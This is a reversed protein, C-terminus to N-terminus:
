LLGVLSTCQWPVGVCSRLAYLGPNGVSLLQLALVFRVGTRQALDGGARYFGMASFAFPAFTLSSHSFSVHAYVHRCHKFHNCSHCRRVMESGFPFSLQEWGSVREQQLELMRKYQQTWGELRLDDMLDLFVSGEMLGFQTYYPANDFMAIFTSYAQTLYWQWSYLRKLGAYDRTLRYMSHYMVTPHVYNYSRWLQSGRVQDWGDSVEYTYGPMSPYWFMSARISHNASQVSTPYPVEPSVKVGWLTKNIYEDVLQLPGSFPAYRQSMMLQLGPGAGAEDSLGVVYSREDQWIIEGAEFDYPMVSSSRGFPDSTEAGVWQYQSTFAGLQRLHSHLPPLVLLSVHATSPPLHSNPPPPFHIALHVRGAKVPTIHYSRYPSSSSPQPDAALTLSGTGSVNFTLQSTYSPPHIFLKANRMETSLIYGPVARISVNGQEM